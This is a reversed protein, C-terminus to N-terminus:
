RLRLGENVGTQSGGPTPGGTIVYLTDAASAVAVGHRPTPLDTARTWRNGDFAEVEEFTGRPEEGGVVYLTDGLVAAGLGGRPTPLDPRKEWRDTAPDYCEFAGLNASMSLRRGGVACIRGQFAAVALHDRPTPLDAIQRWTRSAAEYAYASPFLRGESAGGVVYAIGGVAAAGGAGRPGPM